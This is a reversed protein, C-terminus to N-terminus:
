GEGMVLAAALAVVFVVALYGAFCLLAYLLPKGWGKKPDNEASSSSTTRWDLWAVSTRRPRGPVFKAM